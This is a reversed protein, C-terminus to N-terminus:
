YRGACIALAVLIGAERNSKFLALCAGPDGPDLTVAQGALMIAAPLLAAIFFLPNLGALIAAGTLATLCLAYCGGVFLKPAHAFRRSTSKIGALADDEIDQFGYITDFGLVWLIAAAYLTLVALSIHGGAATAGMPAGYGFTFGLMLQPWWTVRKALPYLAVLVLSCV